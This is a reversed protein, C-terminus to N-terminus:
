KTQRKRSQLLKKGVRQSVAVRTGAARASVTRSRPAERVANTMAILQLKMKRLTDAFRLQEAISVHAFLEANINVVIDSIDALIDEGRPTLQVRYARRDADDPRRLVFGKKELDAVFEGTAVKGLGLVKALESQSIGPLRRSIGTLVWSESRTINLHPSRSDFLTRRLRSVDHILFGVRIGLRRLAPDALRRNM